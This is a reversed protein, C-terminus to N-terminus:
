SNIGEKKLCNDVHTFRASVAKQGEDTLMYMFDECLSELESLICDHRFAQNDLAQELYFNEKSPNSTEIESCKKRLSNYANREYNIHVRLTAAFDLLEMESKLYSM